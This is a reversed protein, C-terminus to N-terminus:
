YEGFTLSEDGLIYTITGIPASVEDFSDVTCSNVTITFNISEEVKIMDGSIDPQEFSGKITVQYIGMFEM